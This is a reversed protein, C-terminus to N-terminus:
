TNRTIVLTHCYADSPARSKSCVPLIMMPRVLMCFKRALDPHDLNFRLCILANDHAWKPSNM